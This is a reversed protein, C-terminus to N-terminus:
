NFIYRVGLRIQYLDAPGATRRFSESILEGNIHRLRYQARGQADAGQSLLPQTTVFGHGQGWDSNFLNGVNYIDARVEISNRRGAIDTFLQQAVSLDARYVMPLFVAGREAYQGRNNRLYRDQQIFAEWAEAQQQATFTVQRANAGSGITASYQQFNMESMDRPIYILDNSTGGDGNIDGAFVYSANGATRGEWVLGITTSGIRFYERTASLAGVLRHGPSNGSFGLGPNNPDGAHPNNNWSGFAISGPDVTNKAEGYSYFVKAYMGNSFPRELSGSAHWSYGENQNKLVVANAVHPHVRTQHQGPVATWRPRTDAGTFQTNAERLNANIYYIGNVDRGYLFEATGILGLPLRQDVAINSRWIQPFRFDPNTLALEYSAAPAGTVTTPKYHHPNPNFPRNRTNDIAEFGTLVGTNGIQNSIWVYAPRGTFIGTGGRLQTTRNSMVDWNFGVRPSFLLNADPLKDTQYRVPQGNEDRFTLQDALENRFGTEGFFPVDVRMGATLTMDSNIRWENQGYVGAYFVELPQVPKEMGPINAWRVQFRRLTVPSTTRNPNQLFDNADTYFDQLSNYTYVSQSGPFFVNESEYRELSVGFTQTHSTGFRTFNNQLQFSGYRLENNPTFPETGFSTYVSGGELIDVFPFLGASVGSPSGRSEDSRDYGIILQNAMNNGILANWEGVLSRRNELITYNSGRFNLGNQNFRRTGFGLSSSQSVMVDTESNLHSYRLSFRNRDDLNFDMRGLFRTVPTGHQYGHYGGPDYSFNTQLFNGLQDLDSALVRTMNGTVPAGGPNAAWSTGPETRDENEYNLFFFLRDRIIPGSIWGGINQFDFPNDAREIRTAGAREGILKQDQHDYRMSGRFQNTGSRTVTNVGAGVFNGQRVDFPAVNVQVQEIADISIPAVGTRDGPQGGLGFSNNFYAGDVTINNLRNDAGAFSGGGGFQPTLRTFSEIRRTVTPLVELAERSVQTSAGTRDPSFTADAQAATITIGEVAVATQALAFDISTAVGLNLTVNERAQTEYGLYTATIRYPGGVRMGPITYRGDARTLAGYRTGSPEHVATVTAGSIAAGTSSTVVGTLAATTVGQAALHSAGASLIGALFLCVVFLQRMRLEEVKRFSTLFAGAVM